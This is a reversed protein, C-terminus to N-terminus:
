IDQAREHRCSSCLWVPTDDNNVDANYPCPGYSVDDTTGCGECKHVVVPAASVARSMLRWFEDAPIVSVTTRLKRAQVMQQAMTDDAGAAIDSRVDAISSGVIAGTEAEVVYTDGTLPSAVIYGFYGKGLPVQEGCIIEIGIHGNCNGGMIFPRYARTWIIM